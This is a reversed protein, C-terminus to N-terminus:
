VHAAIKLIEIFKDARLSERGVLLGDAHGETLFGEANKTNVSGGYLIPINLAAEKGFQPALIKRIFIAQHRFGEPTDSSKAAEGIAWVPEYAIVIQGAFKKPVGAFAADLQEKLENLYGGNEDRVQEGVCVIPMLGSKLAAKIKWNVIENNDGAARMESHGVIAYSAGSSKFMSGAVRGTYAGSPEWFLDQAGLALKDSGTLAGLFPAPPCVVASVRRLKMMGRKVGSFLEKAERVTGPNLKWNAVILKTM